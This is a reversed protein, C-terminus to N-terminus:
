QVTDGFAMGSDLEATNVKCVTADSKFVSWAATKATKHISRAGNVTSRWSSWASKVAARRTTTDTMTWALDLASARTTYASSMTSAFTMWTSNIAAERKAVATRVCAVQEPTLSVPTKNLKNQTVPSSQTTVAGMSADSMTSNSMVGEAGVVGVSMLSFIGVALLSYMSKM